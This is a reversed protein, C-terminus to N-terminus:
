ESDLEDSGEMDDLNVVVFRDARPDMKDRHDLEMHDLVDELPIWVDGPCVTCHVLQSM